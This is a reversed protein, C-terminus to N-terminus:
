RGNDTDERIIEQVLNRYDIAGNSKRDHVFISKKVTQSEKLASCERINTAYVKTGIATALEALKTAVNRSIVARNSYRTIVIGRVRLNKNSYQRIAAVTQYLQIIGDLSFKDAQAPIIISDSATLANTTITGLAPPTDILIYDYDLNGQAIVEKLQYERGAPLSAFELDLTALRPSYPVIDGFPTEQIADRIGIRKTIVDYMSAVGLANNVPLASTLNGQADFDLLLVKKGCRKLGAGIAAATTSKGVGGKQNTISIIEM